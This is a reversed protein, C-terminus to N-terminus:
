GFIEELSPRNKEKKFSSKTFESPFQEREISSLTEKVWPISELIDTNYGLEHGLAYLKGAISRQSENGEPILSMIYDFRPKALNGKNVMPLLTAEFKARLTNFMARNQVGERNTGLATGPSIGIGPLNQKLMKSATDFVKQGQAAKQKQEEQLAATFLQPQGESIALGGLAAIRPEYGASELKQTLSEARKTKNFDALKSQIGSQLIPLSSEMGQGLGRLIETGTSPQGEIIPISM